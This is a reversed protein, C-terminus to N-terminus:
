PTAFQYGDVSITCGGGGARQVAVLSEGINLVSYMNFIGLEDVTGPINNVQALWIGPISNRALGIQAGAVCYINVSRLIAPGGGAPVTYLTVPNGGSFDTDGLHRSYLTM